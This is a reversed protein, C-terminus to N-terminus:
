ITVTKHWIKNYKRWSVFESLDYYVKEILECKIIYTIEGYIGDFKLNEGDYFGEINEEFLKIKLLDGVQEYSASAKKEFEGGTFEICFLYM